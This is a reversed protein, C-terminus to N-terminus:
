VDDAAPDRSRRWYAGKGKRPKEQRPRYRPEALERAVPNRKSHRKRQKRKSRRGM